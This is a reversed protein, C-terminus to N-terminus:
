ITELMRISHALQEIYDLSSRFIERFYVKESLFDEAKNVRAIIKYSGRKLKKIEEETFFGSENSYSQNVIFIIFGNEFEFKGSYFNRSDTGNSEHKCLEFLNLM